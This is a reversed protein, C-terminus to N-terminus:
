STRAVAFSEFAFTFYALIIWHRINYLIIRIDYEIALAKFLDVISDMQLRSMTSNLESEAEEMLNSFIQEFDLLMYEYFEALGPDLAQSMYNVLTDTVNLASIFVQVVAMKLGFLLQFSGEMKRNDFLKANCITIVPYDMAEAKKWEVKTMQTKDAAFALLQIVLYTPLTLLICVFVFFVCRKLWYSNFRFM